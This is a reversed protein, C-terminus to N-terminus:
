KPPLEKVTEAAKEFEARHDALTGRLCSGIVQNFNTETQVITVLFAMRMGNSSIGTIEYRIAPNGGSQLKEGADSQPDKLRSTMQDRVREAYEALSAFQRQSESIVLITAGAPEDVAEIKIVPKPPTKQAYGGPVQIQVRGDKSTLTAQAAAFRSAAILFILALPITSLFPRM